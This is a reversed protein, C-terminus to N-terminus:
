IAIIKYEIYAVCLSMIDMGVIVFPKVSFRLRGLIGFYTTRCGASWMRLIYESTFIVLLFM